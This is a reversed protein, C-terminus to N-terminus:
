IYEHHKLWDATIRMGEEFTRPSYGLIRKAKNISYTTRLSFKEIENKKIGGRILSDFTVTLSPYNDKMWHYFDIIQSDAVDRAADVCARLVNSLCSKLTKRPRSITEPKPLGAIKMYATFFENWTLTSLGSIIFTEGLAKDLRISLLMSDVLDDVYVANCIGDVGDIKEWGAVLVRKIAGITWIPSFPGFVITPRIIVIPLGKKHLDRCINEARVKSKGYEDNCVQVPTEETVTEPPNSGYVAVSSLYVFRKIGHMFALEALNRTGQENIEKNLSTDNTNGYACHFVVECGEIAKEISDKNLLDGFTMTVPLRGLRSANSFNRVLCRSKIGKDLWLRESIRGGIFGTAGTILVKKGKIKMPIRRQKASM